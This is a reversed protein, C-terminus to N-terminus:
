ASPTAFIGEQFARAARAFDERAPPQGDRVVVLRRKCQRRSAREVM